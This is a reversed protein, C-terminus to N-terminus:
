KTTEAKDYRVAQGAENLEFGRKLCNAIWFFGDLAERVGCASCIYHACYRSYANRGDEAKLMNDECAPCTVGEIYGPRNTM